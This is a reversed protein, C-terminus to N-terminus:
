LSALLEESDLEIMLPTEADRNYIEVALRFSQKLSTLYADPDSVVERPLTTM